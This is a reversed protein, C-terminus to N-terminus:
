KEQVSIVSYQEIVPNALLIESAKEALTRASEEDVADIVLEFLKGSQVVETDDFGGGGLKNQLRTKEPNPVGDKATVIIGVRYEPAM